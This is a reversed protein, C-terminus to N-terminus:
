YSFIISLNYISSSVNNISESSTLSYKFVNFVFNKVFEYLSIYAFIAQFEKFTYDDYYINYFSIFKLFEYFLDYLLM